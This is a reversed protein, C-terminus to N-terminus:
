RAFPYLWVGQVGSAREAAKAGNPNGAAYALLAPGTGTGSAIVPLAYGGAGGCCPAAAAASALAARPEAGELAGPPLSQGRAKGDTGVRQLRVVWQGANMAGLQETYALVYEGGVFGGAVASRPGNAPGSVAVPAADLPALGPGFRRARVRDAEVWAVLVADGGAVLRARVAPVQVVIGAPDLVTGAATVSALRWGSPEAWAVVFDTGDFVVDPGIPGHTFDPSVRFPEGVTGDPAVFRGELRTTIGGADTPSGHHVVLFRGGGFAAAPRRTGIGNATPARGPALLEFPTADIPTGSPAIRQAVISPWATRSGDPALTDRQEFIALYTGAGFALSATELADTSLVAPGYQVPASAAQGDPSLMTGLRRLTYRGGSAADIRRALVLFGSGGDSAAVPADIPDPPQGVPTQILPGTGPLMAEPDTMGTRVGGIKMGRAEFLGNLAYPAGETATRTARRIVGAGPALWSIESTLAGVAQGSESLRVLARVDTVHKAADRFTGAPVTVTEFGTVTTAQEVDVSENRGDGDLDQGLDIGTRSFAVVPGATVPFRLVAHPVLAATVRDLPDTDGYFAVGGPGKTYYVDLVSPVGSPAVTRQRFVTSVQGGVSASGTVTVSSLATELRGILEAQDNFSWTDGIASPFHNAADGPGSAPPMLTPPAPVQDPAPPDDHGGGCAALLLALTPGFLPKRLIRHPRHAM